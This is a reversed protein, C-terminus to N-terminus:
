KVMDQKIAGKLKLFTTNFQHIRIKHESQSKSLLSAQETYTFKPKKKQQGKQPLHSFLSTCQFVCLQNRIPIM